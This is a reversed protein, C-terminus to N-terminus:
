EEHRMSKKAQLLAIRFKLIFLILIFYFNMTMFLIFDTQFLLFTAAIVLLADVIFAWILSEMRIKWVYEDEVKERSFAIFIFSLTIGLLSFEDVWSNGYSKFLTYLFHVSGSDYYDPPLHLQLIVGPLIGGLQVGVKMWWVWILLPFIAIWGIKRFYSPFLYKVLKM